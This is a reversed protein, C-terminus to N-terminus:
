AIEYEGSVILSTTNTIDSATVFAITSDGMKNLAIFNFGGAVYTMLQNTGRNINTALGIPCAVHIVNKAVFPLGGIRINGAMSVDKASLDVRIRFSVLKNIKTYYGSQISYTNAGPTTSGIIIPTFTGSEIQIGHTGDIVNEALHSSLAAESAFGTHGSSAYDLQSLNSHYSPNVSDGGPNRRAARLDIVEKIAAKRENTYSDSTQLIFRYLVKFEQFPQSGWQINRDDNNNQAAELTSDTRQGQIVKIPQEVDAAFVIFYAVYQGNGVQTQKWETGTWQNYNVRGSTTNHFPYETASFQKWAGSAGDRYMVPLQAYEQLIQEFFAEPTDNHIIGHRLDEDRVVGNTVSVKVANDSDSDNLTFGYVQLGSIWQTWDAEHMRAHTEKDMVTGHREDGPGFQLAATGQDANWYIYSVYIMNDLGPFTLSYSLVGTDKDFFIFYLGTEDPIIVNEEETKTFIRDKYYVQYQSGTPEITFTRTSREFNFTSDTRNPFGIPAKQVELNGYLQQLNEKEVTTYDETSLQKGDIKVTYTADAVLVDEESIPTTFIVAGGGYDIFFDETIVDGNKRIVPSPSALWNRKGIPAQYVRCRDDNSIFVESLTINAESTSQIGISEELKGVAGQLGSIHTSLIESTQPDQWNTKAM